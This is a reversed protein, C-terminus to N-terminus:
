TAPATVTQSFSASPGAQNLSRTYRGAIGSTVSVTGTAASSYNGNVDAYVTDTGVTVRAYPLPLTSLPDTPLTPNVTGTVTGSVLREVRDERWLVQGTNADILTAWRAYPHATTVVTEYALRLEDGRPGAYPVLVLDAGEVRDSAP